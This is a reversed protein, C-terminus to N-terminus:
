CGPALSEPTQWQGWADGHGALRQALLLDAQGLLQIDKMQFRQLVALRGSVEATAANAPTHQPVNM